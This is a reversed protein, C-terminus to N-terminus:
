SRFHEELGAKVRAARDDNVLRREAPTMVLWDICDLLCLRCTGRRTPSRGCKCEHYTHVGTSCEYRLDSLLQKLRKLEVSNM